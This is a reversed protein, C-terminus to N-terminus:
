VAFDEGEDDDEIDDDEEEMDDDDGSLVMLSETISGYAYLSLEAILGIAGFVVSTVIGGIVGHVGFLDVGFVNSGTVASVAITFIMAIVTLVQLVIAIVHLTKGVHRYM